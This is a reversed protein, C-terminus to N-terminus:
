SLAGDTGAGRREISPASACLTRTGALLLLLLGLNHHGDPYHPRLRLAEEYASRAEEIRGLKMLVVGLNNRADPVRPALKVARQQADLAETLKGQEQLANGLETLAKAYHPQLRL